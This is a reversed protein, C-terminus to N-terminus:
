WVGVHLLVKVPVHCKTTAVQGGVLVAVNHRTSQLLRCWVNSVERNHQGAAVLEADVNHAHQGDALRQLPAVAAPHGGDSDVVLQQATAALHAEM